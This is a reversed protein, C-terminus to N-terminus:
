GSSDLWDCWAFFVLIEELVNDVSNLRSIFTVLHDIIEDSKEFFELFLLLARLDNEATSLQWDNDILSELLVLRELLRVEDICAFGHDFSDDLNSFSIKIDVLCEVVLRQGILSM